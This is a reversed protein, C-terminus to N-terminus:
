IGQSLLTLVNGPLSTFTNSINLVFRGQVGLIDTMLYEHLIV